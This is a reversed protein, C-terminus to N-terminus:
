PQHQLCSPTRRRRTPLHAARGLRTPRAGDLHYMTVTADQMRRASMSAKSVYSIYTSFLACTAPTMFM